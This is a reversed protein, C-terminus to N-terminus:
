FKVATTQSKNPTHVDTLVVTEGKAAKKSADIMRQTDEGKNVVNHKEASIYVGKFKDQNQEDYLEGDIYIEGSKSIQIKSPKGNIRKKLTIAIRDNNQNMKM